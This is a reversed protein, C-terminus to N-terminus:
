ASASPGPDTQFSIIGEARLKETFRMLRRSVEGLDDAVEQIDDASTDPSQLSLGKKRSATWKMRTVNGADDAAWVSHMLTNRKQELESASRSIEELEKVHDPKAGIRKKMLLHFVTLLRDFSLQATIIAGTDQDTPVLHWAFFALLIELHQFNVAVRGLQHTREKSVWEALDGKSM